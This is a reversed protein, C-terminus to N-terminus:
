CYIHIKFIVMLPVNIGEGMLMCVYICSSKILFRLALEIDCVNLCIFVCVNMFLIPVYKRIHDFYSAFLHGM